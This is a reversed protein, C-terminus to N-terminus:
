RRRSGSANALTAKAQEPEYKTGCGFSVKGLIEITENPCWASSNSLSLERKSSISRLQHSSSPTEPNSVRRKVKTDFKAKVKLSTYKTSGNMLISHLSGV